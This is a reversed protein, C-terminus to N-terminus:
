RSQAWPCNIKELKIPDKELWVGLEDKRKVGVDEDWSSGVHGRWRYTMCELIAPGKSEQMFKDVRLFM